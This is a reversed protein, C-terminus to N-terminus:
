AKELRSAEISIIGSGQGGNASLKEDLLISGYAYVNITLDPDLTNYWFVRRSIQDELLEKEELDSPTQFLNFQAVDTPM